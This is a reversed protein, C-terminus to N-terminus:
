GRVRTVKFRTRDSSDDFVSGSPSRYVATVTYRGRKSYRPTVLCIKGGGYELERRVAQSSRRKTVSVTVTGRPTASGSRVGVTVCITARTGKPVKKTATVETVTRFCGAYQSPSCQASASGGGAVVLGTALMLAAVLTAAYRTM